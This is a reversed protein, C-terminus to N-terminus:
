VRVAYIRRVAGAGLHGGVLGALLGLAAAIFASWLVAQTYTAVTESAENLKAKAKTIFQKAEKEAGDVIAQIDEESLNTNVALVDKAMDPQGSILYQGAELMIKPELEELAQNVKQASVDGDAL